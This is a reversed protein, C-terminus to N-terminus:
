RGTKRRNMRRNSIRGGTRDTQRDTQRHGDLEDGTAGVARLWVFRTRVDGQPKSVGVSLRVNRFHRKDARCTCLCLKM